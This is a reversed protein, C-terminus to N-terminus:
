KSPMHELPQWCPLREDEWKILAPSDGHSSQPYSDVALAYEAGEDYDRILDDAVYINSVWSDQYGDLWQVLYEAEDNRGQQSDKISLPTVEEFVHAELLKSVAELAMRRAYMVTTAPTNKKLTDILDLPSRGTNDQVEPDAGASVLIEVVGKNLYGSAIHLPTFGDKDRTDVDSGSEIIARVGDEDGVGCSYHLGSRGDADVALALVDGGGALMEKVTASDGERTAKWWRIEYGRRIDDAVKEASVWVNEEVSSDDVELLYEVRFKAADEQKVRVGKISKVEYITGITAQQESASAAQQAHRPSLKRSLPSRRLHNAKLKCRRTTELHVCRPAPSCLRANMALRLM